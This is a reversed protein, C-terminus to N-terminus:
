RLTMKSMSVLLGITDFNNPTGKFWLSSFSTSLYQPVVL